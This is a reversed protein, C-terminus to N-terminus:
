GEPKRRSAYIQDLFETDSLSVSAVYKGRLLEVVVRTLEETTAQIELVEGGKINMIRVKKEQDCGPVLRWLWAYIIVQLRHDMSLQQTCKIEWVHTESILDLRASFRYRTKEGFFPRLIADIPAHEEEMKPHILVHEHAIVDTVTTKLRQICASVMDDTLWCYEDRSIQTMKFYLKEQVALYLNALYLYDSPTRAHPDIERYKQKLFYHEQPKMDNLMTGILTYLTSTPDKTVDDWFLCPLAIGNLDAVDEYLGTKTCHVVNPMEIADGAETVTVFIEDVWPTITELVHEPIFKILETPTVYHINSKTLSEAIPEKEYFLTQPLGKFDVYEQDRLQHHDMKLFRLPQDTSHDNNELLFMRHTARTCGVYLTNPCSEIPFNKAFYTFYSQDFGVVIVYKRQRGKVTHFTSFVVKGRMVREDLKDHELMPIHCPIGREVLANEMKRVNSNIGKVSASLVFIDEPLDGEELIKLIHYVVIRELNARSNRLYTVPVGERCAQLRENGIMVHNVFSAMPKTIRYSTHLNCLDFQPKKLYPCSSWIEPAMTLFRIDAGKFEYLGQMYDGLILLQCKWKKLPKPLPSCAEESSVRCTVKDKPVFFSNACIRMFYLVFRYYLLSMDQAEDLVILDYKPLTKCRHVNSDPRGDKIPAQYLQNEPLTARSCQVPHGKPTRNIINLPTDTIDSPQFGEVVLKLPHKAGPSTKDTEQDINNLIRRIGSDTYADPAFYQVALSHYTHVDINKIGYETVKEKFEKRLSANYTIQLIKKTPIECAVSLITTSKGSGACADVVVNHGQKICDCIYQQEESPVWSLPKVSKKRKSM